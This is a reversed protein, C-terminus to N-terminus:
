TAPRKFLSDSDQAISRGVYARIMRDGDNVAKVAIDSSQKQKGYDPIIELASRRREQDGLHEQCSNAREDDPDPYIINVTIVTAERLARTGRMLDGVYKMAMGPYVDDPYHKVSM